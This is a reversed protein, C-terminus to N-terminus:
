PCSLCEKFESCHLGARRSAEEHTTCLLIMSHPFFHEISICIYRLMSAGKSSKHQM